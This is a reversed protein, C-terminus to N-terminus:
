PRGEPISLEVVTGVSEVSRIEITCNMSALMKRCIVLGLGTGKQKSTHFPKFLNEMQKEPIGCGNDEVKLWLLGYKKEASIVIEPNLREDLADFANTLLNLMVQQLVRQDLFAWNADPPINVKINIGNKEFDEAAIGLLNATFSILDVNQPVPEEFMSFTKLSKLLYEMRHIENLSRDVYEGITEDSFSDINEKLVSLTMKASNVPNGIEHRIGSFIYGINEMSNVAEAISELRTKETIDRLFIWVYGQTIHYISYGFIKGDHNLTQQSGLAKSPHHAITDPLILENLTQYDAPYMISSFFESAAKNQFFVIKREIDLVIIGVDMDQLIDSFICM